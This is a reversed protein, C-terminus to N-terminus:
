SSSKQQKSYDFLRMLGSFVALVGTFIGIVKEISSGQAIFFLAALPILLLLILYRTNRWNGRGSLKSELSRAEEAGVSNRIFEKFNDSFLRPYPELIILGKTELINIMNKNKLNLLGDDALDYLVLKEMKSLSKWIHMFQFESYYHIGLQQKQNDDTKGSNEKKMLKDWTEAIPLDIIYSEIEKNEFLSLKVTVKSYNSLVIKLDALITFIHAQDNNGNDQTKESEKNNESSFEQESKKLYDAYWEELVNYEFPLAIVITNNSISNLIMLQRLILKFSDFQYIYEDLGKIWIVDQTKISTEDFKFGEKVIQNAHFDEIKLNTPVLKKDPSDEQKATIPNRIKILLDEPNFATLLIRNFKEHRIIKELDMMKPKKWKAKITNLINDAIYQYLYWIFLAVLIIPLSLFLLWRWPSIKERGQMTVKVCGKTGALSYNLVGKEAYWDNHYSRDKLLSMLPYNMTVPDPFKSYIWDSKILDSKENIISSDTCTNIKLRDIGNGQIREYWEGHNIDGFKKNLLINEQAIYHMQDQQWIREEQLKVSRYFLVTPIVTLCMLWIFMYAHYINRTILPDPILDKFHITKKNINGFIRFPINPLQSFSDITLKKVSLEIKLISHVYILLSIVVVVPIFVVWWPQLFSLMVLLVLLITLILTSSLIPINLLKGILSVRRELLTIALFGSFGIFILQYVFMTVPKDIILVGVVQCLLIIAQIFFLVRYQLYNETQFLIWRLSWAEKVSSSSLPKLKQLIMTGLFICIFTVLILYFTLLFIRANKNQTQKLDLLTIHALPTNEIPVIRALWHKENYVIEIIEAVRHNIAGLVRPNHDCEEFFNEHLNKSKKSHFMVKGKNNIVVFQIDRPLLQSYLSPMASTIALVPTRIFDTMTNLQFKRAISDTLNFSIAAEQYGTNYSKVSEIYFYEGEEKLFWSRDTDRANKYYLRESLDVSVLDSFATRTFAKFLRGSTDILMIENVPIPKGAYEYPITTFSIKSMLSDRAMIALSSDHGTERKTVVRYLNIISTLDAKFNKYLKESVNEIRNNQEEKDVIYHKLISILILSLLSIGLIISIAVGTADRSQLREFRGIFIIKLIPMGILILLLIASIVILLQSNITRTKEKFASDTIFGALYFTRDLFNVPVIMVHKKEGRIELSEFVGGQHKQVSDILAIQNTIEHIIDLNSNYLVTNSDFLVVNDLLQDFKLGEMLRTVPVKHILKASKKALGKKYYYILGDILLRKYKKSGLEIEINKIKPSYILYPTDKEIVFDLKQKNTSNQFFEDTIIQKDLDNIVRNIQDFSEDNSEIRKYINLLNEDILTILSEQISRILYFGEYIEIHKRYYEDKDHINNGYEKLIRFARQKVMSEQHPIYIFFYSSYLLIIALAVIIWGTYNRNFRKMTKM